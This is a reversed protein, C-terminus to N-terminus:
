QSIIVGKTTNKLKWTYFIGFLPDQFIHTVVMRPLTTESLRNRAPHIFPEVFRLWNMSPDNGDKLRLCSEGRRCYIVHHFRQYVATLFNTLIWIAEQSGFMFKSWGYPHGHGRRIDNSIDIPLPINSILKTTNPRFANGFVLMRRIEVHNDKRFITILDIGSHLLANDKQRRYCKIISM